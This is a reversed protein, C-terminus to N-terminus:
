LLVYQQKEVYNTSQNTQFTKWELFVGLIDFEFLFTKIKFIENNKWDLVSERTFSFFTDIELQFIKCKIENVDNNNKQLELILLFEDVM